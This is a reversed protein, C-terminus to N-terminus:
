LPQLLSSSVGQRSVQTDEIDVVVEERGHHLILTAKNAMLYTPEVKRFNSWRWDEIIYESVSSLVKRRVAHERKGLYIETKLAEEKGQEVRAAILSRIGNEQLHWELGADFRQPMLLKMVEPLREIWGGLQHLEAMVQDESGTLLINLLRDEYVLGTKNKVFGIIKDGKKSLNLEWEDGQQRFYFSFRERYQPSKFSVEGKRCLQDTSVPLQENLASAFEVYSLVQDIPGGRSHRGGSIPKVSYATPLFFQERLGCGSLTLWICLPWTMRPLM